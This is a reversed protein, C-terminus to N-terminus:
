FDVRSSSGTNKSASQKRKEFYILLSLGGILVIAMPPLIALAVHPPIPVQVNFDITESVGANGAEDTAYATFKHDGDQLITLTTNGNITYVKGDLIYTILSTTENVNFVLPVNSSNYMKNQLSLITVNPPTTDVTFNITSAVPLIDSFISYIRLTHIGDSIPGYLTTNRPITVNSQEDLTYGMSVISATRNVVFEVPIDKNFSYIENQPSLISIQAQGTTNVTFYVSAESTFDNNELTASNPGTRYIGGVTAFIRIHHNGESLPGLTTSFNQAIENARFPPNYIVQLAGDDLSLKVICHNVFGDWNGNVSFDLPVFWSFYTTRTPSEISIKPPTLPGTPISPAPASNAMGAISATLFLLALIFTLIIATKKM